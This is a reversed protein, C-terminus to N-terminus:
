REEVGSGGTAADRNVMTRPRRFDPVPRGMDRPFKGVGDTRERKPEEYLRGENLDGLMCLLM